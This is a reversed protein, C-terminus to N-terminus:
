QGNGVPAMGRAMWEMTEGEDEVIKCRWTVLWRISPSLGLFDSRAWGCRIRKKNKERKRLSKQMQRSKRPGFRSTM